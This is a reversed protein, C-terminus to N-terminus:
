WIWMLPTGISPERIRIIRTKVTLARFVFKMCSISVLPEWRLVPILYLSLPSLHVADGEEMGVVAHGGGLSVPEEDVSDDVLM